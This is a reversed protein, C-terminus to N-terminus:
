RQLRPDDASLIIDDLTHLPRYPAATDCATVAVALAPWAHSHVGYTPGPAKKTGPPGIKDILAQRIHPDKARASACIHLKVAARDVLRVEDPENWAQQFRGTWVLTVMADNSMPMGRARMMEIALFTDDPLYRAVMRLVDDNLDVGCTVVGGHGETAAIARTTDYVVWGSQKSGPDIALCKM